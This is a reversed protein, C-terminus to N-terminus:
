NLEIFDKLANYLLQGQLNYGKRLYHIHDQNVLGASHWKLMSGKGGMAIYLDWIACNHKLAQSKLVISVSYVTSNEFLKVQNLM